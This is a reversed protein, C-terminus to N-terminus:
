IHILSLGIVMFVIQALLRDEYPYKWRFSFEEVKEDDLDAETVGYKKMLRDLMVAANEAEGDVGHEALAKIKRLLEEKAM